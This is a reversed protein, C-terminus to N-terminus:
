RVGSLDSFSFFNSVIYKGDISIDVGDKKKLNSNFELILKKNLINIISSSSIIISESHWQISYPIRM